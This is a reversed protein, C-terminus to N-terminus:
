LTKNLEFPKTSFVPDPLYNELMAYILYRDRYYLYDDLHDVLKGGGWQVPKIAGPFNFGLLMDKVAIRYQLMVDDASVADSVRGNLLCIEVDFGITVDDAGFGVPESEDDIRIVWASPAPLAENRAQKYEAASGVKRFWQRDFNAPKTLLEDIVPRLSLM